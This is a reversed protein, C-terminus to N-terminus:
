IARSIKRMKMIMSKKCPYFLFKVPLGSLEVPFHKKLQHTTFNAQHLISSYLLLIDWRRIIQLIHIVNNESTLSSSSSSSPSFSWSSICGPVLLHSVPYKPAFAALSQALQTNHLSLRTSIPGGRAPLLRDALSECSLKFGPPTTQRLTCICVLTHLKAINRSLKENICLKNYWLWLSLIFV